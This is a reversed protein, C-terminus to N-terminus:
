LVRESRFMYQYPETSVPTMSPASSDIVSTTATSDALAAATPTATPTETPSTSAAISAAVDQANASTTPSTSDSTSTVSASSSGDPGVVEVNLPAPGATSTVSATISSDTSTTPAPTADAAAVTMTTTTTMTSTIISSSEVADAAQATTPVFVLTVNMASGDRADISATGANEGGTSDQKGDDAGSFWFPQLIGPGPYYAFTQSARVDRITSQSADQDPKGDTCKELAMPQADSGKVKYTVCLAIGDKPVQLTVPHSDSASAVVASTVNVLNVTTANDNSANLIIDGHAIDAFLSALRKPADGSVASMVDVTGPIGVEERKSGVHMRSRSSRHSSSVHYSAGHKGPIVISSRRTRFPRQASRPEVKLDANVLSGKLNVDQSISRGPKINTNAIGPIKVEVLDEANDPLARGFRHYRSALNFVDNGPSLFRRAKPKDSAPAASKDSHAPKDSSAPEEHSAPDDHSAAAPKDNSSPASEPGPAGSGAVTPSGVKPVDPLEVPIMAGDAPIPALTLAALACLAALATFRNNLVAM